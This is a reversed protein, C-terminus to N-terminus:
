IILAQENDPERDYLRRRIRAVTSLNGLRKLRDSISALTFTAVADDPENELRSKLGDFM